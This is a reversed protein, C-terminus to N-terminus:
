RIVSFLNELPELGHGEEYDPLLSADGVVVDEHDARLDVFAVCWSCPVCDQTWRFFARAQKEYVSHFSYRDRRM